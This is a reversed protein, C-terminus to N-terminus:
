PFRLLAHLPVSLQAAGKLFALEVVAAASVVKAGLDQCLGIAAQMTGGTALLDDVVVVRDGPRLADQHMELTNEGYELQYARSRTAAPLKGPKRAMVMGCGLQRALAAAFIFGRSEIGVIAHLKSNMFPKALENLCHHFAEPHNLLPSIDKFVIGPKPFDPIDRLYTTLDM